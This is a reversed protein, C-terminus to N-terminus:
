GDSYWVHCRIVLVKMGICGMATPVSTGLLYVQPSRCGAWKVPLVLFSGGVTAHVWTAQAALAMEHPEAQMGFSGSSPAPAAVMHVAKLPRAPGAAVQLSPAAGTAVHLLPSHRSHLSAVYQHSLTSVMERTSVSAKTFHEWRTDVSCAAYMLPWWVHGCCGTGSASAGTCRLLMLRHLDLAPSHSIVVDAEAELWRVPWATHRSGAGSSHGLPVWNVGSWVDQTLHEEPVTSSLSVLVGDHAGGHLPM